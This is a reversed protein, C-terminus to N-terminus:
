LIACYFYGAAVTEQGQSQATLIGWSFLAEGPHIDGRGKGKQRRQHKGTKKTEMRIDYTRYCHKVANVEEKTNSSHINNENIEASFIDQQSKINAASINNTQKEKNVAFLSNVSIVYQVVQMNSYNLNHM